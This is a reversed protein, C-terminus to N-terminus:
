IYTEAVGLLYVTSGGSVTGQLRYQKTGATLPSMTMIQEAFASTAIIPTGSVLTTSDTINRVRPTVSSGSTTVRGEVRARVTLGALNTSVFEVNRYDSLDLVEPLAGSPTMVTLRTGGFNKELKSYALAETNNKLRNSSQYGFVQDLVFDSFSTFAM